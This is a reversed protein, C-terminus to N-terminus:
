IYTNHTTYIYITYLTYITYITYVSYLIYIIYIYLYKRLAQFHLILHLKRILLHLICNNVMEEHLIIPRSITQYLANSASIFTDVNRNAYYVLSHSDDFDGGIFLDNLRSELSIAEQEAKWEERKKKKESKVRAKDSEQILMLTQIHYKEEQYQIIDLTKTLIQEITLRIEEPIETIGTIGSKDSKNEVNEETMIPSNNEAINEPKYIDEMPIVEVKNDVLEEKNKIGIDEIDDMEKGIRMEQEYEDLDFKLTERNGQGTYKSMVRMYERELQKKIFMKKREYEEEGKIIEEKELEKQYAARIREKERGRIQELLENM